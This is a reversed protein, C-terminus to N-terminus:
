KESARSDDVTSMDDLSVTLTADEYVEFGKAPWLEVGIATTVAQPANTFHGADLTMVRTTLSKSHVM